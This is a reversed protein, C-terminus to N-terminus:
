LSNIYESKLLTPDSDIRKNSKLKAHLITNIKDILEFIVLSRVNTFLLM